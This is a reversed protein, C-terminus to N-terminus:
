RTYITQTEETEPKRKCLYRKAPMEELEKFKKWLSKTLEKINKENYKTVANLSINDFIAIHGTQCVQTEPQTFPDEHIREKNRIIYAEFLPNKDYQMYFSDKGIKFSVFLMVKKETKPDPTTIEYYATGPICRCQAKVVHTTTVLFDKGEEKAKKEMQKVFATFARARNYNAETLYRPETAMNLIQRVTKIQKM